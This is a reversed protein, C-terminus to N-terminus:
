SFDHNRQAEFCHLFVLVCNSYPTLVCVPLVFSICLAGSSVNIDLFSLM